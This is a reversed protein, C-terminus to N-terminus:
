VLKLMNPQYSHVPLTTQGSLDATHPLGLLFRLVRKKKLIIAPTGLRWLKLKKLSPTYM